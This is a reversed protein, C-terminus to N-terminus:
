EELGAAAPEGSMLLLVNLELNEEESSSIIRTIVDL